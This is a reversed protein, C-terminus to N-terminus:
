EEIKCYLNYEKCTDSVKYQSQVSIPKNQM